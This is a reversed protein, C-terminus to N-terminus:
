FGLVTNIAGSAANGNLAGIGTFLLALGVILLIIAVPWSTPQGKGHSILGTVIKYVGAVTAVGGLIMIIIPVIHDTASHVTEVGKSLNWGETNGTGGTNGQGIDQTRTDMLLNTVAPQSMLFAMGNNVLGM